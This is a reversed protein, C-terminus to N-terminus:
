DTMGYVLTHMHWDWVGLGDRRQVQGRQYGHTQRLTLPLADILTLYLLPLSLYFPGEAGIHFTLIPIFQFAEVTTAASAMIFPLPM